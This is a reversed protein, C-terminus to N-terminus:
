AKFLVAVVSMEVTGVGVHLEMYVIWSPSVQLETALFLSTEVNLRMKALPRLGLQASRGSVPVERQRGGVHLVYVISTFSVQSAITAVFLILLVWSSEQFGLM